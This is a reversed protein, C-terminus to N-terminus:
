YGVVAASLRPGDNLTFLMLVEAEKGDAAPGRPPGVHFDFM